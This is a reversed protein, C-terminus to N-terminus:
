NIVLTSNLKDALQLAESNQDTLLEEIYSFEYNFVLLQGLSQKFFIYM